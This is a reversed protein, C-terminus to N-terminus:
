IHFEGWPKGHLCHSFADKFNADNVYQDKVTQLGFIKFDLHSLMTYRRSLADAIVNDKGSKHKIIYPFSDIFEVWKAHHRSLNTQTRIHKLAEHDSHIIFQCHWLYHHWTRLTCVLAFLEKDYTSYNLSIARCDVCMRWSGYKKPVLLVPVLCPSLPQCIYGKDLLAQV